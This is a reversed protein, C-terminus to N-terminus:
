RQVDPGYNENPERGDDVWSKLDQASHIRGALLEDVLARTRIADFREDIRQGTQQGALKVIYGPRSDFQGGLSARQEEATWKGMKEWILTTRWGHDGMVIVTSSDWQGTSELLARTQGLWQDALALNDIYTGGVPTLKGTRRNYIGDPHPIPLHLFTFTMSRDRLVDDAARKLHLYDDVHGEDVTEGFRKPLHVSRNLLDRLRPASFLTDTSSVLNGAFNREPALGNNVVNENTWYCSDLVDNLFRCYPNFWGVVATKYGARLADEFVTDREDFRKWPNKASSRVLLMGGATSSVQQVPHGSLLAPVAKETRDSTPAVDSFVIADSALADFAPLQLGPYRHEYVQQYSLEDLVIWIIRPRAPAPVTASAVHNPRPDNLGRGAWWLWLLQVVILVSSLATFVLIVSVTDVVAEWQRAAFRYCIVAIVPWLLVVFLEPPLRVWHPLHDPWIHDIQHVILIPLFLVVATWVMARWYGPREASILLAALLGAVVIFVVLPPGFLASPTGRWHYIQDRNARLLGELLQALCIMALAVAIATTRLLKTM